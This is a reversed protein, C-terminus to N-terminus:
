MRTGKKDVREAVYKQVSLAQRFTKGSYKRESWWMIQKILNVGLIKEMKIRSLSLDGAQYSTYDFTLSVLRLPQNSDVV